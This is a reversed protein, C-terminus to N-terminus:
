LQELQKLGSNLGKLLDKFEITKPRAWHYSDRLKKVESIIQKQHNILEQNM